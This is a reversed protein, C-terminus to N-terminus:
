RYRIILYLTAAWLALSVANAAIVPPDKIAIGYVFWLVVGVAMMCATWVSIDRSEKLKILRVLQPIGAFTTLAAAVFGIYQYYGEM